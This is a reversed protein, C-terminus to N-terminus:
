IGIVQTDDDLFAGDLQTRGLGASFGYLTGPPQPRRSREEPQSCVTTRTMLMMMTMFFTNHM